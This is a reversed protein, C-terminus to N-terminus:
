ASSYQSPITAPTFGWAERLRTVEKFAHAVIKLYLAGAHKIVKGAAFVFRKRLKKAFHPKEPKMMLAVWRLLNHSVMALMAYAHNARLKLCPFHKLDYANKDERIFNEMNGRKQHHVLVEQPSYRKMKSEADSQIVKETATNLPFNTVVAYYDYPDEKMYGDDHFMSIQENKRRLEEFKKKDLTRKIVIPFVLKKDEKKSWKPTWYFHAVDITPLEVKRAEAKKSEDETYIWPQWNLYEQDMQDKWGTTGDHATFSFLVGRSSVEKIMEQYCYASDGRVFVDGKLRRERPTRADLLVSAVQEAAGVGSKTNGARLDYSHCFGLQNFIEQTDLCWESKYNWAVGEIKNGSQVHSTSDIDLVLNKPQYEEPLNNQLSRMMSYSQKSLFQNLRALHEDDFDRLFDGLTRGKPSGEGFLAKIGEEKDFDDFDDLSDFGHIFGAIMNLAMRYSGQSRPSKREPLCKIFEQKLGSQDFIEILTGLGAAATLKENTPILKLKQLISESLEFKFEPIEDEHSMVM